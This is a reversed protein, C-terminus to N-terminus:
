LGAGTAESRPRPQGDRRRIRPDFLEIAARAAYAISGLRRRRPVRPERRWAWLREDSTVPAEKQAGRQQRVTGDGLDAELRGHADGPRARPRGANRPVAEERALRVHGKTLPQAQSLDLSAAHANRQGPQWPRQGDGVFLEARPQPLRHARDLA